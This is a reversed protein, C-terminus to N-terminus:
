HTMFTAIAGDWLQRAGAIGAASFYFGYQQDRYAGTITDTDPGAFITSGDIVSAQAARIPGASAAPAPYTAKAVIWPVQFGASTRSAAILKKLGDAYDSTSVNTAADHEGGHWLVARVGSPGFMKMREMFRNYLAGPGGPSTTADQQWQSMTTGSWAIPVFAVPAGFGNVVDDGILCWPAGGNGQPDVAPLPDECLKWNAGDFYVVKGTTTKQKTEGFFSANTGGAILLVEGVAVNEVKKTSGAKNGAIGQMELNYWGGSPTQLKGTIHQGASVTEKSLITWPVIEKGNTDVIRARVCNTDASFTVDVPIQAVGGNRQYVRLSTPASLGAAAPGGTSSVVDCAEKPPASTDKEYRLIKVDGANLYFSYADKGSQLLAGTSADYVKVPDIFSVTKQGSTKAVLSAYSANIYLPDGNASYMHVGALKAIDAFMGAPWAITPAWISTWTGTNKYTMAPSGTHAGVSQKGIVYASGDAPYFYDTDRIFSPNVTFQQSFIAQQESTTVIGPKYLEGNREINVGVLDKINAASAVGDKIYGSAYNFVLVRNNNKLKNAIVARTASDVSWPNLFVVMKYKSVDLNVLDSMLVSDYPAGMQTLGLRPISLAQVSMDGPTHYSDQKNTGAEAYRVYNSSDEDSVILVEAVSDNSFAASQAKLQNIKSVGALLAPDSMYSKDTDKNQIWNHLSLYSYTIGRAISFAAFNTWNQLTQVVDKPFAAEAMQYAYMSNPDGSDCNLKWVELLHADGSNKYAECLLDYNIKSVNSGQDLDTLIAKGHLALSTFPQRELQTGPTLRDLYSPMPNIYDISSITILKSLANHGATPNGSIENFYGYTVGIKRQPFASKLLTAVYDMTDIKARSRFRYYEIVCKDAAPDLFTSRGADGMYSAAKFQAESPTSCNTGRSSSWSEFATKDLAGYAAPRITSYVNFLNDDNMWEQSTEGTIDFGIVRTDLNKATLVDKMKQVGITWQAKVKTSFQSANRAFRGQTQGSANAILEGPNADKWWDPAGVAPRLIFKADPDTQLIMSMTDTLASFDWQGNSPSVPQTFGSDDGFINTDINYVHIGTGKFEQVMKASYGYSHVFPGTPYGPNFPAYQPAFNSRQTDTTTSQLQAISQIPKTSDIAPINGRSQGTSTDQIASNCNKLAARTIPGTAGYGTSAPTGSCVIGNKCQWKQLATQTLPGFYTTYSNAGLVGESVLFKKLAIVQTDVSGLSLRKTIIPCTAAEASSILSVYVAFVITISIFLLFFSTGWTRTSM